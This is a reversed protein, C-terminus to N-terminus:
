MYIYTQFFSFSDEQYAIDYKKQEALERKDYKHVFELMNVAENTALTGTNNRVRSQARVPTKTNGELIKYTQGESLVIKGTDRAAQQTSFTLSTALNERMERKM